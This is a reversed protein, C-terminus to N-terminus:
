FSIEVSFDKGDWIGASDPCGEIVWESVWKELDTIANSKLFPRLWNTREDKSLIQASFIIARRDWTAFHLLQTKKSKVWAVNKETVAARAQTIVNKSSYLFQKIDKSKLYGFHKSLYWEMWFGVMQSHFHKKECMDSFTSSYKSIFEDDTIHDLYLVVDNIVPTFFDINKLLFHAIEQIRNAKARRIIARAVGLDLNEFKIIRELADLISQGANEVLVYDVDVVEMSYPNIIEIEELIEIKELQYHNNLEKQLFDDSKMIKTKESSLSLRHNEYLYLSLKQLLSDLEQMSSGFIRFDDVYRVHKFGHNQLFQNVDILSAESM